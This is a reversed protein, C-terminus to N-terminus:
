QGQVKKCGHNNQEAYGKVHILFFPLWIILHDQALGVSPLFCLQMINADAHVTCSLICCDMICILTVFVSQPIIFLLIIHHELFLILNM